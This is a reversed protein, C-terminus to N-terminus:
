RYEASEYLRWTTAKKSQFSDTHQVNDGFYSYLM